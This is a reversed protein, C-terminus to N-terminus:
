DNIVDEATPVKKPCVVDIGADRVLEDNWNKFFVMLYFAGIIVGAALLWIITTRTIRSCESYIQHKWIMSTPAPPSDFRLWRNFFMKETESPTRKSLQQAYKFCQLAKDKGQMSRFTVYARQFSQDSTSRGNTETIEYKEYLIDEQTRIYEQKMIKFEKVKEIIQKELEDIKPQPNAEEKNMKLLQVDRILKKKERDKADLKELMEQEDLDSKGFTIDVIEWLKDQRIRDLANLDNSRQATDEMARQLTIEIHNWLQAQLMLDKGGFEYDRPLNDIIITFDRM